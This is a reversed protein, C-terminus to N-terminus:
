QKTGRVLFVDDNEFAILEEVFKSAPEEWCAAEWVANALALRWEQSRIPVMGARARENIEEEKVGLIAALFKRSLEDHREFRDDIDM